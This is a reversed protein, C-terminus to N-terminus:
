LKIPELINSNIVLQSFINPVTLYDHLNCLLDITVEVCIIFVSTKANM